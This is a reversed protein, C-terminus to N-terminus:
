EKRPFLPKTPMTNAKVLEKIMRSTEPIFPSLMQGIHYLGVVLEKIIEIGKERDQKVLKFPETEQIRRDLTAIHESIIESVYQINYSDFAEIYGKPLVAKKDTSNASNTGVLINTDKM